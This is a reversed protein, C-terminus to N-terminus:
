SASLIDRAAEFANNFDLHVQVESALMNQLLKQQTKYKLQGIMLAGIGAITTEVILGGDSM